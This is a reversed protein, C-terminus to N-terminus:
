LFALLNRIGTNGVVCIPEFRCIHVTYTPHDADTVTM